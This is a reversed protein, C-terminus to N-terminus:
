TIWCRTGPSSRWAPWGDARYFAAEGFLQGPLVTSYLRSVYVLKILPLFKAKRCLLGWRAAAIVHTGQVALFALLVLGVDAHGLAAFLFGRAEAM